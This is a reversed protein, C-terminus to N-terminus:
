PLPSAPAAAPRLPPRRGGFEQRVAVFGPEAFVRGCQSCLGRGGLFADLAAPDLKDGGHREFFDHILVVRQAHNADHTCPELAALRDFPAVPNCHRYLHEMGPPSRPKGEFIRVVLSLWPSEAPLVEHAGAKAPWHLLLRNPRSAM